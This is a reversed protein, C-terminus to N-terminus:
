ARRPVVKPNREVLMNRAWHRSDMSSGGRWGGGGGVGGKVLGSWVCVDRGWMMDAGALIGPRRALIAVGSALALGRTCHGRAIVVHRGCLVNSRWEYAAVLLVMCVLSNEMLANRGMAVGSSEKSGAVISRSLSWTSTHITPPPACGTEMIEDGKGAREHRGLM